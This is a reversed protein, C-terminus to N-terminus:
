VNGVATKRNKDNLLFQHTRIRHCNSCIVDCKKIEKLVQAWGKSHLEASINFEKKSPDRHNFDMVYHPYTKGCDICPVEKIKRVMEKLELRRKQKKSIYYAANKQYSKRCSKRTCEKCLTRLGDYTRSNKHFESEEKDIQCKNCKKMSICLPMSRMETGFRPFQHWM